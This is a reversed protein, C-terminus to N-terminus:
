GHAWDPLMWCKVSYAAKTKTQLIHVATSSAQCTEEKMLPMFSIVKGLQQSPPPVFHGGPKVHVVTLKRKHKPDHPHLMGVLNVM